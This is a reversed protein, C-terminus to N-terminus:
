IKIRGAIARIPVADLIGISFNFYLLKLLMITVLLATYKNDKIYSKTNEM